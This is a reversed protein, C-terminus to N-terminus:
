SKPATAAVEAQEPADTALARRIAEAEEDSLQADSRGQSIQKLYVRTAQRSHQSSLVFGSGRADLLAVVFSQQGGTDGFPNFRVIGLRQVAATSRAEVAPMRGVVDQVRSTLQDLRQGERDVADQLDAPMQPRFKGLRSLRRTMLTLWIAVLLALVAVLLAAIAIYAANEPTM